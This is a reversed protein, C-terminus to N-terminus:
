YDNMTNKAFGIWEAFEKESMSWIDMIDKTCEVFYRRSPTSEKM